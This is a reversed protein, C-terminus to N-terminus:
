VVSKRDETEQHESSCHCLLLRKGSADMLRSMSEVARFIERTGDFAILVNQSHQAKGVVILPINVIKGVLKVPLPESVLDKLRSQGKRGMVLADYGQRAEEIIDPAIGQNKIHIKARVSKSPFGAKLLIEKATEMRVTVAKQRQAMSARIEPTRFRFDLGQEMHWFAKPIKTEVYFIVIESRHRSFTGTIYRVADLALDSGDYALLIRIRKSTTM